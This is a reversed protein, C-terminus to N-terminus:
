RRRFWLIDRCVGVEWRDKSYVVVGVFHCVSLVTSGVVIGVEGISSTSQTQGFLTLRFVKVSIDVGDVSVSFDSGALTDDRDLAVVLSRPVGVVPTNLVVLHEVTRVVVVGVAFLRM